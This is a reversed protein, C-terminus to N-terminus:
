SCHGVVLSCYTACCTPYQVCRYFQTIVIEWPSQREVAENPRKRLRSGDAFTQIMTGDPFTEMVTGDNNHRVMRGDSFNVVRFGHSTLTTTTTKDAADKVIYTCVTVGAESIKVFETHKSGDPRTEVRLNDKIHVVTGNAMTYKASNNVMDTTEKTGNPSELM